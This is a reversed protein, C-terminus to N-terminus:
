QDANAALPSNINKALKLDILSLVSLSLLDVLSIFAQPEALKLVIFICYIFALVNGSLALIKIVIETTKIRSINLFGLFVFSLGTGAFWLADLDFTKYFMPTLITHASGLILILITAVYDLKKRM